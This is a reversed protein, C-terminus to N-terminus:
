RRRPVASEATRGRRLGMFAQSLRRAAIRRCCQCASWPRLSRPVPWNSGTVNWYFEDIRSSVFGNRVTISKFPALPM